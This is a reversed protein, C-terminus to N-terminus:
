RSAYEIFVERHSRVYAVRAEDCWWGADKMNEDLEDFVGEAFYEFIDELSKGHLERIREEEQAALSIVQGIVRAQNDKGLAEYGKQALPLWESVNYVAQAFGGNAADCEVLRTSIYVWVPEPRELDPDELSDFDVLSCWLADDFDSVDQYQGDHDRKMVEAISPSNPM